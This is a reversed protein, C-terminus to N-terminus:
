VKLIRSGCLYLVRLIGRSFLFALGLFSGVIRLGVCASCVALLPFLASENGPRWGVLPAFVSYVCRSYLACECVGRVLPVSSFLLHSYFM